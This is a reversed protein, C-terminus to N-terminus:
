GHQFDWDRRRMCSYLVVPTLHLLEGSSPEHCVFRCNGGDLRGRCEAVRDEELEGAFDGHVHARDLVDELMVSVFGPDSIDGEFFDARVGSANIIDTQYVRSHYHSFMKVLASGISGAAGTILVVQDKLESFM